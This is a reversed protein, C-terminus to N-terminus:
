HFYNILFISTKYKLYDITSEKYPYNKFTKFINFFTQDHSELVKAQSIIANSFHIKKM